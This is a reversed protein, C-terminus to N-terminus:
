GRIGYLEIVTGSAFSNTSSCTFALSSIATTSNIFNSLLYIEGGGNTDFGASSRVTKNKNTDAYDLIDIVSTGFMGATASAATSIGVWGATASGSLVSSGTGFLYHNKTLSTSNITMYLEDVSSGTRGSRSLVRVQLHKFTSPISSFTATTGTPYATAISEYGDYPTVSNSAASAAGIGGPNQGAVTFTYATGSTLGGIQIPSSGGTATLGGPSSTVVYSSAPAGSGAPTFAVDAAQSGATATGITPAAPTTEAADKYVGYLTATSYQALNGGAATITLSTIAATNSWVGAHMIQYAVTGNNETVSDISFSKYNSSAYNPIYMEYNAFTSATTGSDNITLSEANNPATSATSSGTGYLIIRSFSSSSGNFTITGYNNAATNRPSIVLKLDTYTQPISSFSISASGGAGVTVTQLAVLTSAM